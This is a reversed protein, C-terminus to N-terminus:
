GIEKSREAAQLIAQYVANEFGREKLAALGEATTGAPSTVQHILDQPSQGMSALKASGLVTHVSLKRSVERTLGLRLGSDEMAQLFLFSFAPGSGSLATLAHFDEEKDLVIIEGGKSFINKALELEKESVNANPLMGTIGMRIVFPINPMVRIIGGETKRSSSIKAISIGAAISIILRADPVNSLVGQIQNPKVALILPTDEKFLSNLSDHFKVGEKLAPSLNEIVKKSLEFGHLDFDSNNAALPEALAAGMKGLGM